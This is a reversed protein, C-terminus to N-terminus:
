LSFPFGTLSCRTQKDASWNGYDNSMSQSNQEAMIDNFAV